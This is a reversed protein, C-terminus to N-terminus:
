LGMRELWAEPRAIEEPRPLNAAARWVVNLGAHGVRGVVARVFAAGDVYQAQKAEVGLLRELATGAAGGRSHGLVARLRHVSPMRGPGVADLVAEAHGELLAMVATVSALREREGADLRDVLLPSAAGPGAAVGSRLARALRGPGRHGGAKPAGVLAVALEGVQTALHGALWPAAALQLVHAAEHLAVWAALDVRDLDRERQLRLVNPAVLLMRTAATDVGPPAVAAVAADGAAEFGSGDVVGAGPGAPLVQGLVRASVLGLLGAVAGTAVSRSAIATAGSRSGSPEPVREMLARAFAANARQVGVRDVVLVRCGGVARRAAFGLGTIQAAWPLADQASRRLLAVVGRGVAGPVRPGAPTALRALRLAGDWDVGDAASRGGVGGRAGPREDGVGRRAAGDVLHGRLGSM